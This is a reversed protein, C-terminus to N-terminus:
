LARHFLKLSFLILVIAFIMRVTKGKLKEAMISSGIQGGAFSFIAALLLFKWDISGISAHTIFGSFSSFYVIFASSAAATKTPKRFARRYPRDCFWHNRKFGIKKYSSSRRKDREGREIFADKLRCCIGSFGNYSYFTTDIWRNIFAGM